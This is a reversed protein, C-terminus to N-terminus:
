VYIKTNCVPCTITSYIDTCGTYDTHSHKRIDVPFYRLESGCNKCLCIKAMHPNNKSIIEIAM